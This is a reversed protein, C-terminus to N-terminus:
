ELWTAFSQRQDGVTAHAKKVSTGIYPSWEVHFIRSPFNLTSGFRPLWKTAIIKPLSHSAPNHNPKGPKNTQKHINGLCKCFALKWANARKHNENTTNTKTKLSLTESHFGPQGRVGLLCEMEAKWINPNWAQDWVDAKLFYSPGTYCTLGLCPEWQQALSESASALSGMRKLCWLDFSVLCVFLWM